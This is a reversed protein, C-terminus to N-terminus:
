AMVPDLPLVVSQSRPSASVSVRGGHGPSFVAASYELVFSIGHTCTKEPM